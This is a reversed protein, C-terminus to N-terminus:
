GIIFLFNLHGLFARILWFGPQAFQRPGVPLLPKCLTFTVDFHLFLPRHFILHLPYLEAFLFLAWPRLGARHRFRNTEVSNPLISIRQNKITLCAHLNYLMTSNRFCTEIYISKQVKDKILNVGNQLVHSHQDGKCCCCVCCGCCCCCCCCCKENSHM